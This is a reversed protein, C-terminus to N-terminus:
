KNTQKTKPAPSQDLPGEYVLYAMVKGHFLWQCRIQTNWAFFMQLLTSAM